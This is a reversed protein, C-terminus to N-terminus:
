GAQDGSVPFRELFDALLLSAAIREDGSQWDFHVRVEEESGWLLRSTIALIVASETGDASLWREGATVLIRAPKQHEDM